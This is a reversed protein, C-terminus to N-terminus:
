SSTLWKETNPFFIGWIRLISTLSRVQYLTALTVSIWQLTTLLKLSYAYDITTSADLVRTSNDWTFGFTDFCMVLSILHSCIFVSILWHFM